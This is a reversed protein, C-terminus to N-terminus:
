SKEWKKEEDGFYDLDDGADEGPVKSMGYRIMVLEFEDHTMKLIQEISPM